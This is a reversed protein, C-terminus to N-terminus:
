EGESTIDSIDCRFKLLMIQLALSAKYQKEFECINYGSIPEIYPTKQEVFVKDFEDLNQSVYNEFQIREDDSDFLLIVSMYESYDYSDKDDGALFLHLHYRLSDRIYYGYYAKCESFHNGNEYIASRNPAIARWRGGDMAIELFSELITSYYFIHTYYWHPRPDTQSFLYYEYGNRHEDEVSVIRYEPAYTYYMTDTSEIPSKSWNEPAKLLYEVRALPSELLRFRKKWLYEVKDIDASKNKPTNTDMVRTYINNKFVGQYSEILYYPTDFTNKIVIVDITSSKIHYSKVLVTPRIGGAFEKDKLFDVLKQTNKRNPDDSVDCISYDTEEDVGIIIYCDRNVLNNALCIIDHLLDMNSDHWARKFDWYAGEQKLSILELIEDM